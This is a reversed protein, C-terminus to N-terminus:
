KPEPIYAGGIIYDEKHGECAHVWYWDDGSYEEEIVRVPGWCPEDEENGDAFCDSGCCTSPDYTPSNM